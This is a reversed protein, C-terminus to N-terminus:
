DKKFPSSVYQKDQWGLKAFNAVCQDCQHGVIVSDTLDFVSGLTDGIQQECRACSIYGFCYSVIKSHGILNCVIANRQQTDVPEIVKLKARLSARTLPKTM